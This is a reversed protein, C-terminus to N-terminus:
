LFAFVLRFVDEQGDEALERLVLAVGTVRSRLRKLAAARKPCTRELSPVLAALRARDHACCMLANRRRVWNCAARVDDFLQVFPGRLFKDPFGGEAPQWSSDPFGGGAFTVIAAGQIDADVQDDNYGYCGICYASRLNQAHTPPFHSPWLIRAVQRRNANEAAVGAPPIAASIGHVNFPWVDGGALIFAVITQRAFEDDVFSLGGRFRRLLTTWAGRTNVRRAMIGDGHEWVPCTPFNSSFFLGATVSGHAYDRLYGDEAEGLSIHWLMDTLNVGRLDLGQEVFRFLLALDLSTCAAPSQSHRQEGPIPPNPNQEGGHWCPVVLQDGLLHAPHRFGRSFRAGTGQFFAIIEKCDPRYGSPRGGREVGQGPRSCGRLILNWASEDHGRRTDAWEVDETLLGGNSTKCELEDIPPSGLAVWCRRAEAADLDYCADSFAHLARVSAPRPDAILKVRASADLSGSTTQRFGEKGRTLFVAKRHEDDGFIIALNAQTELRHVACEDHYM